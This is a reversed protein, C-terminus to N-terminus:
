DQVSDLQRDSLQRGRKAQQSVSQVFGEDWTGVPVRSAIADLREHIPDASARALSEDSYREELRKVAAVRGATLSRKRHYYGALSEVFGRDYDSLPKEALASLRDAYTVRPM